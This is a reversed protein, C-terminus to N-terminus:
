NNSEDKMEQLTSQLAGLKNNVELYELEEQSDAVVGAGAQMIIKENDIYATRITICTDMNGDFGFYGICGSYFSRKIGEFEAILEMARIKPAGSMTGATFTGMLLDFMDYKENDLEGVVDSVIHMVHSYREVRMRRDEPTKVTGAKAVRGVDNRGLDILMIHEAIEKKDALLENELAKDKALTKGRKRTGAIPKLLIQNDQLSVMVEPSSGVIGFDVYELLYMYPSPNKSRLKRYFSLRDIKVKQTYRNSVVIQFIDGSRIMEKSERVIDFFKEKSHAFGGEDLFEAPTLKTSTVNDFLKNKITDFEDEINDLTSLMTLMSTKHSLYLTIRPRVFCFDDIDIESKLDNMSKKLRPEFEKVMDFGVYGIFGDVFNLGANKALEKYKQTDIKSYYEKMFNLPNSDIQTKQGNEDIYHSISNKSVIKERAGITIFSGNNDNHLASEFLLVIENPYLEKIKEYLSVVTFQDFLLSFRLM